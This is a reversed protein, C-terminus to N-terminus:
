SSNKNNYNSLFETLLKYFKRMEPGYKDLLKAASLILVISTISLTALGTIIRKISVLDLLNSTVNVNTITQVVPQNLISLILHNIAWIHSPDALKDLNFMYRMLFVHDVDKRSPFYPPMTVVWSTPNYVMLLVDGDATKLSLHYFPANHTKYFILTFCYHTGQIVANVVIKIPGANNPALELFEM